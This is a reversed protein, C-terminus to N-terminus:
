AMAEALTAEWAEVSRRAAVLSRSNRREAQIDDWIRQYRMEAHALQSKIVEIPFIEAAQQNSITQAM